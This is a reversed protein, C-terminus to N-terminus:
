IAKADGVSSVFNMAYAGGSATLRFKMTGASCSLTLQRTGDVSKTFAVLGAKYPEVAWDSFVLGVVQQCSQQKVIGPVAHNWGVSCPSADPMAIIHRHREQM